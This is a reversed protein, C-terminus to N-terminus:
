VEGSPKLSCKIVLYAILVGSHAEWAWREFITAFVFESELSM